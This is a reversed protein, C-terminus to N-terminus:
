KMINRMVDNGAGVSGRSCMLLYFLLEINQPQASPAIELVVRKYEPNPTATIAVIKVGEATLEVRDTLNEGQVLLEVQPNSFGVWWHPPDIREVVTRQALLPSVAIVFISVQLYKLVLAKM